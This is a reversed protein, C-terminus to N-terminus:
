KFIIVQLIVYQNLKTLFYKRPCSSPPNHSFYNKNLYKVKGIWIQGSPCSKLVQSNKLEKAESM